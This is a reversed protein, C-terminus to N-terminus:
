LDDELARTLVVMLAAYTVIVSVAAVVVTLLTRRASIGRNM